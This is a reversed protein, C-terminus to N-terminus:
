EVAEGASEKDMPAGNKHSVIKRTSRSDNGDRHVCSTKEEKPFSLSAVKCVSEKEPAHLVTWQHLRHKGHRQSGHDPRPVKAMLFEASLGVDADLSDLVRLNFICM